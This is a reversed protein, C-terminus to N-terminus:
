VEMGWYTKTAHHKTLCLSLKVKVNLSVISDKYSAMHFQIHYPIIFIAVRTTHYMTNINVFIAVAYKRVSIFMPSESQQFIICM